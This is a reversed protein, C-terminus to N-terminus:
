TAGRTRDVLWTLYDRLEIYQARDLVVDQCDDADNARMTVRLYPWASGDDEPGDDRGDRTIFGPIEALSFSGGRKDDVAPLIHSGRYVIPGCLCSCAIFDALYWTSGDNDYRLTGSPDTMDLPPAWRTCNDAHERGDFSLTSSYISM